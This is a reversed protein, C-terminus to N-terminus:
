ATNGGIGTYKEVHWRKEPNKGLIRTWTIKDQICTAREGYATAIVTLETGCDPCRM